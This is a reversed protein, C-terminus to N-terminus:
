ARRVSLRDQEPREPRPYRRMRAPRNVCYSMWSQQQDVGDGRKCRNVGPVPFPANVHCDRALLRRQDRAEAELGLLKECAESNQLREARGPRGCQLVPRAGALFRGVESGRTLSLTGLRKSPAM